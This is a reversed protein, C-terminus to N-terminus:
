RKGPVLEEPIEIAFQCIPDGWLVSKKVDARLRTGFAIEYPRKCYGASCHCLNRSIAEGSLISERALPCHCYHYRKMKPDKDRLYEIAMYPIKTHYILNGRRVGAGIGPNDRVFDIVERDIRQNYYLTGDREYEELEEIFKARQRRLYDDIDKSALYLAREDSYREQPSVDPCHELLFDRTEKEGIGSELRRMFDNTARPMSRAPTGIPPPEFGGLVDDQMERGYAEAFSGCLSTLQDLFLTTLISVYVDDNRTFKAYRFLGMLRDHNVRKEDMLHRVFRDADSGDADALKKGKRSRSLFGEFEKVASIYSQVTSASPGRSRSSTKGSRIFKRFGEEDM